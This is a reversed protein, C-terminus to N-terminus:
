GTTGGIHIIDLADQPNGLLAMLRRTRELRRQFEAQREEPDDFSEAPRTILSEFRKLAHVLTTEM